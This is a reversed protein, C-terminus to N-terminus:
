QPKIALPEECFGGDDPKVPHDLLRLRRHKSSRRDLRAIIADSPSVDRGFHVM